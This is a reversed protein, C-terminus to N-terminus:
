GTPLMKEPGNLLSLGRRGGHVLTFKQIILVQELNM